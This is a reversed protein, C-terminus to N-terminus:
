DIEYAKPLNLIYGDRCRSVSAMSLNTWGYKNDTYDSDIGVLAYLDAVSAAGYDDIIDLLRDIVLEAESRTDLIIDDNYLRRSTSRRPSDRRDRGREEERRSYNSYNVYSHGRDRSMSRSRREGFLLMEIGGVVMDSITNKAAPVLVDYLIYDVVNTKDSEEGIFAESFKKGVSKKRKIANNSTVQQIDKKKEEKDYKRERIKHSNSPFSESTPIEVKSM